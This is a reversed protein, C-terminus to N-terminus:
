RIKTNCGQCVINRVSGTQHCHDLCRRDPTSYKSEILEINCLECNETNLYKEYLKDWDDCIIGRRRWNSIRYFKKGKPTQRYNKQPTNNVSELYKKQSEKGKETKVYKYQNKYKEM